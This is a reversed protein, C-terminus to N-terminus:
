GTAAVFFLGGDYDGFAGVDVYVDVRQVSPFVDVAVVRVFEPGLPPVLTQPGTPCEYGKAPPRPQTDPTLSKEGKRRGEKM